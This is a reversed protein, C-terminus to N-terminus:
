ATKQDPGSWFTHCKRRRRERFQAPKKISRAPRYWNRHPFRAPGRLMDPVADTVRRIQRTLLDSVQHIWADDLPFERVTTAGGNGALLAACSAAGALLAVVLTPASAKAGPALLFSRM